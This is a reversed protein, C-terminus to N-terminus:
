SVAQYVRHISQDAGLADFAVNVIGLIRAIPTINGFVTAFFALLLIPGIRPIHAV